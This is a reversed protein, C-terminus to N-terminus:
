QLAKSVKCGSCVPAPLPPAAAAGVGAADARPLFGRPSAAEGRDRSAAGCSKEVGQFVFYHAPARGWEGRWGQSAWSLGHGLSPRPEAAEARIFDEGHCRNLNSHGWSCPQLLSHRALERTSLPCLPGPGLLGGFVSRPCLEAHIACAEELSAWATTPAQAPSCSHQGWGLMYINKKFFLSMPTPHMPWSPVPAQPVVSGGAWRQLAPLVAQAKSPLLARIGRPPTALAGAQTAM